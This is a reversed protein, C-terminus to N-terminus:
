IASTRPTKPSGHATTMVSRRRRFFCATPDTPAAATREVVLSRPADAVDGTAVPPDIEVDRYAPDVAGPTAAHLPCPQVPQRVVGEGGLPEGEVDPPPAPLAGDLRDGLLQVEVPMGDLLQVLLVHPLLGAPRAARRRPDDADVLDGDALPVTVADHDAVQLPPPRDPEAALVAGLRAAVRGEGPEAGPFAALDARGDHVHPLSGAVGRELLAVGRLGPDDVVLEGDHAVEALRHVLHPPPLVGAERPLVPPEDLPLPVVEEGAPLVEGGLPPLRQPQQEPGVLPQMRGVQQLLREALEPVVVAGAPRPPEERVPFVGQPPLPQFGEALEGRHDLAM